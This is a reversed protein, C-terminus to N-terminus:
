FRNLHLVMLSVGGGGFGARKEDGCKKGAIKLGIFRMVRRLEVNFRSRSLALSHSSHWFLLVLRSPRRLSPFAPHDAGIVRLAEDSWSLKNVKSANAWGLGSRGVGM